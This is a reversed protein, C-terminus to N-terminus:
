LPFFCLRMFPGIGPGIGAYIALQFGEVLNTVSYEVEYVKILIKKEQELTRGGTHKRWNRKRM